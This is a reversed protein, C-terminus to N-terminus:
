KKRGKRGKGINYTTARKVGTVHIKGAEVLRKTAKRIQDPNAAVGKKIDEAKASGSAGIIELIKADMAARGEATRTNIRRGRPRGKAAAKKRGSGAPRGRRVPAAAGRAGVLDDLSLSLAQRGYGASKLADILDGLTTNGPASAVAEDIIKQTASAIASDISAVLKTKRAM